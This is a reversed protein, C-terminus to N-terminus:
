KKRKRKVVRAVTGTGITDPDMKGWVLLYAIPLLGMSNVVLLAVFWWQERRRAARWLAIGKWVLDWLVLAGTGGWFFPGYGGMM